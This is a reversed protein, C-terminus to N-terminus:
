VSEFKYIEKQFVRYEQRQTDWSWFRETIIYTSPIAVAAMNRATGLNDGFKNKRNRHGKDENQKNIRTVLTRGSGSSMKQHTRQPWATLLRIKQPQLFETYLVASTVKTINRNRQWGQVVHKSKHIFVVNWIRLTHELKPYKQTEVHRWRSM